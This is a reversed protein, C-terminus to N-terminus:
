PIEPVAMVMDKVWKFDTVDFETFIATGDEKMRLWLYPDTLAHKSIFVHFRYGGTIIIVAHHGEIKTTFPLTLGAKEGKSWVKSIWTLYDTDTGPDGELLM